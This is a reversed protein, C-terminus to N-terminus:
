QRPHPAGSAQKRLGLGLFMVIVIAGVIWFGLFYLGGRFSGTVKQVTGLVYPGLFGGLNGISNIFGISGAAATGGLLMTPMSWFAPMYAKLGASALVFLALTVPLRAQLAAVAVLALASVAMPVITHFRREGTRDANWGVFLQGCLAIVPPLVVLSTVTDISLGYWDRLISPLFYEVGLSATVACFCAVALLLIKPHALGRWLSVHRRADGASKEAALARELADREGPTLWNADRPRDPLRFLVVVGLIVAPIGWFVYIWQWGVLGLVPPAGDVGIQILWNSIKPSLAQAVPAAIFFFSLAKSRDRNTFWHSLYVIVGPFFGAECLGLLFRVAYFQNPTKVAATLAAIVGWTVMIRALWKRASWREVILSGPIELLFYGLFFVGAGFGIVANDFAPLDRSMTLKAIAVNSRDVYAIAYSVFLLPLLRRLAKRRASELRPDVAAGDSM